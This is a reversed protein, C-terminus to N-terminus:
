GICGPDCDNLYFNALPSALPCLKPPGPGGTNYIPEVDKPFDAALLYSLLHNIKISLKAEASRWSFLQRRRTVEWNCNM